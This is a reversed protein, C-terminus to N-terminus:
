YEAENIIYDSDDDSVYFECDDGSNEETYHESVARMDITHKSCGVSRPSTTLDIHTITESPRKENRASEDSDYLLEPPVQEWLSETSHYERSYNRVAETFNNGTQPVMGWEVSPYHGMEENGNFDANMPTSLLSLTQAMIAANRELEVLLDIEGFNHPHMIQHQHYANPFLTGPAVANPSNDFQMHSYDEFASDPIVQTEMLNKSEVFEKGSATEIFSVEKKCLPCNTSFKTWEKICIYCFTHECCNINSLTTPTNDLCIVCPDM